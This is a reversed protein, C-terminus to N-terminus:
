KNEVLYKTQIPMKLPSDDHKQAVCRLLQESTVVFRETLSVKFPNAIVKLDVSWGNQSYFDHYLTPSLNYFGHNPMNMPSLHLIYGGLKVANAANMLAQGINFCHELTGPDIVLDFQGLNHVENLNAVKEMGRVKVFDVVSLKVGLREFLEESDPLPDPRGHRKNAETFRTPKYGFLKEIEAATTDLDPYGLSLVEGKLLPKLKTLAHLPLAV